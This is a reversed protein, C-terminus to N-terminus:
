ITLKNTDLIAVYIVTNTGPTILSNVSTVMIGNGNTGEIKIQDLVRAQSILKMLQKPFM